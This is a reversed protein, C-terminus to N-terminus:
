RVAVTGQRRTTEDSRGEDLLAPFLQMLPVLAIAIIMAAVLVEVLTFGGERKV